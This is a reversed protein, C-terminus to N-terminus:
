ARAVRRPWPWGLWAVLGALGGLPRLAQPIRPWGAVGARLLLGGGLVWAGAGLGVAVAACRCCAAELWCACRLVRLALVLALQSWGSLRGVGWAAAAIALLVVGNFGSPGPSVLRAVCHRAAGPGHSHATPAYPILSYPHLMRGAGMRPCNAGLLSFHRCIRVRCPRM